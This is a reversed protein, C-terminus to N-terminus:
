EEPFEDTVFQSATVGTLHAEVIKDANKKHTNAYSCALKRITPAVEFKGSRVEQANHAGWEAAAVVGALIDLADKGDLYSEAYEDLTPLFDAFSNATAFTSSKSRKKWIKILKAALKPLDGLADLLLTSTPYQAIIADAAAEYSNVTADDGLAEALSAFQRAPHSYRNPVMKGPSKAADVLLTNIRITAAEGIDLVLRGDAAILRGILKAYDSDHSQQVIIKASLASRLEARDLRALGVMLREANSSTASDTSATAGVLKEILYPYAGPHIESIEDGAITTIDEISVTPFLNSKALKAIIADVATNTKLLKQSLFDDIVARYVFRAEEPKSEVGSPHAARNRMDRLINLQKGEAATLFGEAQLQDAMKSEFVKQESAAREVQQWITKAKANIKALQELKARMDDFLAIYSMVICARLAGAHYCVSAERMYSVVDKNSIQALLEEMDMMVPM